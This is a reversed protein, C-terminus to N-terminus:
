HTLEKQDDEPAIAIVAALIELGDAVWGAQEKSLAPVHLLEMTEDIPLAGFKRQYHGVQLALIRAAEAIQTKSADDVMKDALKMFQSLRHFEPSDAM